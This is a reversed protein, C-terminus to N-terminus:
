RRGNCVEAVDGMRRACEILRPLDLDRGQLFDSLILTAVTAEFATLTVMDLANFPRKEPKRGTLRPPYLDTFELGVAALIAGVDAGGFDHLLVTGDDLERIALSPSRDERTPCSAVWKGPGTRKVRELRSLLTEATM